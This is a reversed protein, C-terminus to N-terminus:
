WISYKLKNDDYPIFCDMGVFIKEGKHNTYGNANYSAGKVIELTLMATSVDIVECKELKGLRWYNSQWKGPIPKVFEGKKFKYKM